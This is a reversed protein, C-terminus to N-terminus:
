AAEGRRASRPKATNKAIFAALSEETVRISGGIRTVTIDGRGCLRYTWDVSKALREAVEPVTLLKPATM